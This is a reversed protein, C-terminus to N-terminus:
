KMGEFKEIVFKLNEDRVIDAVGFEFTFIGHNKSDEDNFLDFVKTFGSGKIDSQKVDGILFLRSFKGM